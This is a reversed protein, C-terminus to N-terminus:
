CRPFAETGPLAPIGKKDTVQEELSIERLDSPKRPEGSSFVFSLSAPFFPFLTSQPNRHPVLTGCPTPCEEQLPLSSLFYCLTLVASDGPDPSRSPPSLHWMRQGLGEKEKLFMQSQSYFWPYIVVEEGSIMWHEPIKFIQPHSFGLEELWAGRVFEVNARHELTLIGVIQGQFEEGSCDGALVKSAIYPFGRRQRSIVRRSRGAKKGGKGKSRRGPSDM